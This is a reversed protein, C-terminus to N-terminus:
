EPPCPSKEPLSLFASDHLKGKLSSVFICPLKALGVFAIRAFIDAFHVEWPSGFRHFFSRFLQGPFVVDGMPGVVIM